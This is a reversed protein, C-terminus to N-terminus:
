EFEELIIHIRTSCSGPDHLVEDRGDADEPYGFWAAFLVGPEARKM